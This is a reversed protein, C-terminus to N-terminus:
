LTERVQRESFHGPDFLEAWPRTSAAQAQKWTEVAPPDYASVDHEGPATMGEFTDYLYLDRDDRGLQQLTGVMALVSGGRWVGCEAFAGAIENRVCHRVADVVAQARAVSTLTYPLAPEVIRRDEPSLARLERKQRARRLAHDLRAPLM